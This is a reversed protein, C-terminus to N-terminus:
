TVVQTHPRGLETFKNVFIPLKLALKDLGDRFKKSRKKAELFAAIVAGIAIIMIFWYEQMWKSMNVVMQTFAPLDAGFSAFLDQFVPVVKVMLLSQQM